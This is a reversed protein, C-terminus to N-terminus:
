DTVFNQSVYPAAPQWTLGAPCKAAATGGRANGRSFKLWYVPRHPERTTLCQSYPLRLM